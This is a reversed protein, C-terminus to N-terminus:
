FERENDGGRTQESAVATGCPGAPSSDLVSDPGNDAKEASNLAQFGNLDM